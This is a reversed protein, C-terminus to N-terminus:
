LISQEVNGQIQPLEPEDTHRFGINSPSLQASPAERRSEGQDEGQALDLQRRERRFPGFQYSAVEGGVARFQRHCPVM